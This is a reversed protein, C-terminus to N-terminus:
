PTKQGQGWYHRLVQWREPPDNVGDLVWIGIGGLAQENGWDLKAKWAKLDNFWGPVFADGDKYCYWASQQEDDWQQGHAKAQEQCEALSKWVGKGIIPSLRQDTRCRREIDVFM